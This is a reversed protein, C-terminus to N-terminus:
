LEAGVRSAFGCYNQDPLIAMNGKAMVIAEILIFLAVARGQRTCASFHVVPSQL